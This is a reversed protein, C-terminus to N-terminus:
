GLESTIESLVLKLPKTMTLILKVKWFEQKVSRLDTSRKGYIRIDSGYMVVESPVNIGPSCRIKEM